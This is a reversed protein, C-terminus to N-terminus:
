IGLGNPLGASKSDGLIFRAPKGESGGRGGDVVFVEFLERREFVGTEM